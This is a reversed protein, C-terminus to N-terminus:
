FKGHIQKAKTLAKRLLNPLYYKFKIKLKIKLQEPWILMLDDRVKERLPRLNQIVRYNGYTVTPEEQGHIKRIFYVCYIFTNAYHVQYFVCLIHLYKHLTGSAAIGGINRARILGERQKNRVLKVKGQYYPKKIEEDLGEHLHEVESFDDVLVIEHLLRSPSRYYSSYYWKM